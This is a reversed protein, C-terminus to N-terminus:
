ELAHRRMSKVLNWIQVKAEDVPVDQGFTRLLNRSARLERASVVNYQELRGIFEEFPVSEAGAFAEDMVFFFNEEAEPGSERDERAINKEFSVMSRILVVARPIFSAYAIQGDAGVDAESIVAYIQMRSLGLMAEHLMDRVDEVSLTGLMDTDRAKFLDVLYQALEDNELETDLMHLSTLKVLLDFAVPLFERYSVNGDQDKDIQFMVSNIERRTLGLDMSMLAQVFEQKSLIGSGDSDMREFLSSVLETFEDRSMGHVLLDQAHQEVEDMRQELRKKAFMGQIIQMALPIFEQYEVQGDSNIDVEALFRLVEDKPFDLRQQLDSMLTKFETPDLVGSQDKDYKEFLEKIIREIDEMDMGGADQGDQGRTADAPLGNALCDFYKAAFEVIDEPQNRLVERTFDKLIDPFEPPIQFQKAFKSAM